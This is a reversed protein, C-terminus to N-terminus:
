VPSKERVQATKAGEMKAEDVKVVLGEIAQRCAQLQPSFTPPPSTPRPLPSPFPPPPPLPLSPPPHWNTVRWEGSAYNLAQHKPAPILTQPNPSRPVQHTKLHM